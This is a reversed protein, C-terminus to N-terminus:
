TVFLAVNVLLLLGAVSAAGFWRLGDSAPTRVRKERLGDRLRRAGVEILATLTVWLVATAAAHRGLPTAALPGASTTVVVHVGTLLSAVASLRSGTVLRGVVRDLPTADFGGDRGVPLVVLTLTVVGGVWVADVVLHVVLVATDLVSM